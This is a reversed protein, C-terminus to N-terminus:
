RLECLVNMAASRGIGFRADGVRVMLPDSDRLVVVTAGEHLGLDRLKAAEHADGTFGVICASQGAHACCLATCNVEHELHENHHSKKKGCVALLKNQLSRVM